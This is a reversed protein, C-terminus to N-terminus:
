NIIANVYDIVTQIKPEAQHITRRYAGYVSGDFDIEDQSIYNVKCKFYKYDDEKWHEIDGEVIGVGKIRLFPQNHNAGKTSTSKLIIIDGVKICKALKLLKQDSSSEENFKSEWIGEAFFRDSQSGGNGYSYGVLWYNKVASDLEEKMMIKMCWFLTQVALNCPKITFRELEKHMINQVAEGHKSVLENILETFHSFKKGPKRSEYGFYQCLLQYIEDKYITYTQPYMCTLLSAATREDNACNKWRGKCIDVMTSKYELLREDLAKSEDFLNTLCTNFAETDDVALSKLVADNRENDIINQGVISSAIDVPM